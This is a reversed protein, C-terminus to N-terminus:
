KQVTIRLNQTIRAGDGLTVRTSAPLLTKLFELDYQMGPELDGLAAIQYEGPPLSRVTYTGDTAPRATSIRRSAPMWFRSDSSFVVITYDVAPEANQDTITGTLETPVVGTKLTVLGDTVDQDDVEFPYDLSDRGHVMSSVMAFNQVGSVRLIYRGPSVNTIKFTGDALVTAPRPPASSVATGTPMLQLNATMRVRNPDPPVGGEFIVRGSVNRGGDLTVIVNSLGQGDVSVLTRGTSVSQTTTITRAGAVQRSVVTGEVERAGAAAPVDLRTTTTSRAVINYQGPPVSRLTFRGDPTVRASSLGVGPAGEDAPQISVSANQITAGTASVVMGSITATQVKMLVIDIGQREEGSSVTITMAGSPSVAGPYYTPAFTVPAPQEITQGGPLTLVGNSFATRANVDRGAALAAQAAKEMAIAVELSMQPISEQSNSTASIIYDGPTLGYLRYVGRDDTSGSNSSQLRRVGTRMSYKMARVQANQVPEGDDGYIVGTIAAGSFLTIKLDRKHEADALQILTGSREPKKQGYSGSLYRARNANIGYRGEPLKDFLFEGTAGSIETRNVAGGGLSVRAGKIPRGNEGVVWGAISGAGILPMRQNQDRSQGQGMQLGGLVQPPRPLAAPPVPPTQALVVLCVLSLGPM